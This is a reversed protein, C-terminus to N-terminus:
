PCLCGGECCNEKLIGLLYSAFIELKQVNQGTIWSIIWRIVQVMHNQYVLVLPFRDKKLPKLWLPFHQSPPIPPMLSKLWVSLLSVSTFVRGRLCIVCFLNYTNTDHLCRLKEKLFLINTSSIRFSWKLSIKLTYFRSRIVKNHWQYWKAHESQILLSAKFLCKM